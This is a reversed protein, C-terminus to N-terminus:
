QSLVYSMYQEKDREMDENLRIMDALASQIEKLRELAQREGSLEMTHHEETVERVKELIRKVQRSCQARIASAVDAVYQHSYSDSVLAGEEVLRSCLEETVSLEMHSIEDEIETFLWKQEALMQRLESQTPWLLFQTSKSRLDEVFRQLRTQREDRTKEEKRIWGVHFGPKMSEIFAKGKGTTEYPAIQASDISRLMKESITDHVHHLQEAAKELYRRNEDVRRTIDAFEQKIDAVTDLQFGALQEVRESEKQWDAQFLWRVHEDVVEEVRLMLMDTRAPIPQTSGHAELADEPQQAEETGENVQPIALELLWQSLSDLQNYPSDTNATFFLKDYEIGWDDLTTVVRQRFDEFPLEFDLHKDIQNVVIALRKQGEGFQQALELNEEAEVHQYDMVLVIADALHLAKETAEQHADDTSDVGPTDLLVVNSNRDSLRVQTAEATTPVAGTKLDSGCLTNLLSSKGASFLGVFAAYASGEDTQARDILDRLKNAAASDGSDQFSKALQSIQTLFVKDETQMLNTPM